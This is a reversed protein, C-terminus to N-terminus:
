TPRTTEESDAFPVYPRLGWRTLVAAGLGAATLILAVTGGIMPLAGIGELALMFLLTGAFATTAPQLRLRLWRLLIRGCIEGWALWGLVITSGGLLLGLLSVPILIITFAMLVLLSLGVIGALVGLAGAVVLHRALVEALRAVPRPRFHTVLAAM